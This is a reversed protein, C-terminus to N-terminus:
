RACCSATAPCTATTMTASPSSRTTWWCRAPASWSRTACGACGAPDLDLAVPNTDPQAYVVRAVGAALLAQACPGTRGSHNCPELTVVATAGWAREGAAILADVEAHPSGAGRHFGEALVTGDPALIVCGVRPNPGLPVGPTQALDLARAMAAHEAPTTAM